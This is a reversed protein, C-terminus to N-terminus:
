RVTLNIETRLAAGGAPDVVYVAREDAARQLVPKGPAKLGEERTLELVLTESAELRLGVAPIIQRVRAQVRIEAIQSWGGAAEPRLLRIVGNQNAEV